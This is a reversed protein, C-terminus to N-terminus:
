TCYRVDRVDPLDKDDHGASAQYATRTVGVRHSATLLRFDDAMHKFTFLYAKGVRSLMQKTSISILHESPDQRDSNTM